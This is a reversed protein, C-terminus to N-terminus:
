EEDERAMYPGWEPLGIWEEQGVDRGTGSRTLNGLETNMRFAMKLAGAIKGESGMDAGYGRSIMIKEITKRQRWKGLDKTEGLVKLLVDKADVGTFEKEPAIPQAANTKKKFVALMAELVELEDEFPKLAVEMEAKKKAIKRELEEGYDDM